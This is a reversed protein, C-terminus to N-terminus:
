TKDKANAVGVVTVPVKAELDFLRDENDALVQFIGRAMAEVVAEEDELDLQANRVIGHMIEHWLTLLVADGQLDESLSIKAKDYHIQGALVHQGDNLKWERCVAYEVGAIRVKEPVKM